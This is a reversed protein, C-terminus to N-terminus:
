SSNKPPTDLINQAWEKIKEFNDNLADEAYEKGFFSVGLSYAAYRTVPEGGSIMRDLLERIEERQFEGQQSHIEEVVKQYMWETLRSFPFRELFDGLEMPEPAEEPAETEPANLLMERLYGEIHEDEVGFLDDQPQPPLIPANEFADPATALKTLGDHLEIPVVACKQKKGDVQALGVFVLAGLRLLGLPTAPLDDEDWFWSRDKDPGFSTELQEMTACGQNESLLWKLIRRPPRPLQKWATKLPDQSPLHEVLARIRERNQSMAPLGLRRCIAKVWHAPLKNLATQLKTEPKLPKEEVEKRWMIKVHELMANAIMSEPEDQDGKHGPYQMPSEGTVGVIKPFKGHSPANGIEVVEIKHEWYEGLDFIYYLTQGESLELSDISTGATDKGPLEVRAAEEYFSYPSYRKGKMDQPNKGFNFEYLHEDSREFAEFIVRHLADLTQEGKIQITRHIPANPKVKLGPGEVLDVKLTFLRSAANEATEKGGKKIKEKPFEIINDDTM